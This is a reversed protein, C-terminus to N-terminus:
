QPHGNGRGGRTRITGWETRIADLDDDDDDYDEDEDGSEIRFARIAAELALAYEADSLHDDSGRPAVQHVVATWRQGTLHSIRRAMEVADIERPFYEASTPYTTTVWRALRYDALFLQLGESQDLRIMWGAPLGALRADNCTM